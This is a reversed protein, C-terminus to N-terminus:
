VMLSSVSVYQYLLFFTKCWHLGYIPRVTHINHITSLDPLVDELQRLHLQYLCSNMVIVDYHARYHRLDGAERNNVWRNIWACILSFMFAGRWQGKHPSNAPSRHIGRVFPWYRPFHKWKIVDDHLCKNKLYPPFVYLVCTVVCPKPLRYSLITIIETRRCSIQRPKPTIM